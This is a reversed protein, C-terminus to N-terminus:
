MFGLVVILFGGEQNTYSFQRQVFGSLIVTFTQSSGLMVAGTGMLLWVKGPLITNVKKSRPMLEGTYESNADIGFLVWAFVFTASFILLSLLFCFRISNALNYCLPLLISALIFGVQGLCHRAALSFALRTSCWECVFVELLGLTVEYGAGELFRGLLLCLFSELTGGITRFM